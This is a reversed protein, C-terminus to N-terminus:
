KCLIYRYHYNTMKIILLKVELGMHEGTNIFMLSEKLM